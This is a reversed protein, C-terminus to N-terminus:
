ESYEIGTSDVPRVQINRGRLWDVVNVKWEDETTDPKLVFRLSAEGKTQTVEFNGTDRESNESYLKKLSNRFGKVTRGQEPSWEVPKMKPYDLDHIFFKWQPSFWVCNTQYPSNSFYTRLDDVSKQDAAYPFQTCSEEQEERDQARKWFKFYDPADGNDSWKSTMKEIEEYLIAFHSPSFSSSHLNGPMRIGIEGTLEDHLIINLELRTDRKGVETQVFRWLEDTVAMGGVGLDFRTLGEQLFVRERPRLESVPFHVKMAQFFYKQHQNIGYNRDLKDGSPIKWWSTGRYSAIAVFDKSQLDPELARNSRIHSKRVFIPWNNTGEILPSIEQEFASNFNNNNVKILGTFRGDTTSYVDVTFRWRDHELNDLNLLKLAADRFFNANPEAWVKGAIGYIYGKSDRPPLPTQQSVVKARSVSRGSKGFNGSIRPSRQFIDPATEQTSLVEVQKTYEGGTDFIGPNNGSINSSRFIEQSLNQIKDGLIEIGENEGSQEEDSDGPVFVHVQFRDDPDFLFDRIEDDYIQASTMKAIKFLMPESSTNDPSDHIRVYFEWDSDEDIKLLGLAAKVFRESKNPISVMEGDPGYIIRHIRPKGAFNTLPTHRAGMPSIPNAPFKVQKKPSKIHSKTPSPSIAKETNHKATNFIRASKTPSTPQPDPPGPPKGLTSRFISPLKFSAAGSKDSTPYDVVIIWDGHPNDLLSDLLTEYVEDFTDKTVHISAVLAKVGKARNDTDESDYQDVVFEWDSDKDIKLLGLVGMKFTEKEAARMMGEYRSYFYGQEGIPEVELGAGGRLGVVSGSPM